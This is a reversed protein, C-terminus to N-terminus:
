SANAIAGIVSGYFVDLVEIFYDLNAYGVM